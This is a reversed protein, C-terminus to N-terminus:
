IVDGIGFKKLRYRSHFLSNRLFKIWDYFLSGSIQKEFANLCTQVHRFTQQGCKRYVQNWKVEGCWRFMKWLHFFNQM